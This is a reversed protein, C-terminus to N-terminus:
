NVRLDYEDGAAALSNTGLQGASQVGFAGLQHQGVQVVGRQCRHGGFEAILPEERHDGVHAVQGGHVGGGFLGDLLETADVDDDGIGADGAVSGDQLDIGLREPPDDVDVQDPDEVGHAGRQRRHDPALAVDQDDRRQGRERGGGPHDRVVRGFGADFVQRIRQPELDGPVPTM